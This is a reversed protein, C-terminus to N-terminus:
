CQNERCLPCSSNGLQTWKDWCGQCLEHTCKPLGGLQIENCCVPCEAVLGIKLPIRNVRNKSRRHHFENLLLMSAGYINKPPSHWMFVDRNDIIDQNEGEELAHIDADVFNAYATLYDAVKRQMQMWHQIDLPIFQDDPYWNILEFFLDDFVQPSPYAGEFDDLMIDILARKTDHVDNTYTRKVLVSDPREPSWYPMQTAAPVLMCGQQTFSDIMDRFDSRQGDNMHVRYRYFLNRRISERRQKIGSNHLHRNEVLERLLYNIPQSSLHNGCYKTGNSVLYKCQHHQCEAKHRIAEHNPINHIMRDLADNFLVSDRTRNILM